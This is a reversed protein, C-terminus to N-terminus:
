KVYQCVEKFIREESTDPPIENFSLSYSEEGIVSDNSTYYIKELISYVKKSCDIRLLQLIYDLDKYEKGYDKIFRQKDKESVIFKLWVKIPKKEFKTPTLRIIEPSYFLANYDVTFWFFKWKLNPKCAKECFKPEVNIEQCNINCTKYSDLIEKKIKEKRFYSCSCFVLLMALFLFTIKKM